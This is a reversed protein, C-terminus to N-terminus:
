LKIVAPFSIHWGLSSCVAHVNDMTHWGYLEDGCTSQVNILYYYDGISVSGYKDLMTKLEKITQLAEGETAFTIHKNFMNEEVIKEIVM